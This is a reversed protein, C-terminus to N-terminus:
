VRNLLWFREGFHAADVPTRRGRRPSSRWVMARVSRSAHCADGRVNTDIMARAMAGAATGGIMTTSLLFSTSRIAADRNVVTVNSWSTGYMTVGPTRDVTGDVEPVDVVGVPV